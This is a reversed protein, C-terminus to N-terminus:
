NEGNMTNLRYTEFKQRVLKLGSEESMLYVTPLEHSLFVAMGETVSYAGTNEFVLCDNCRLDELELNRVLIDNMTCLSGAITWTKKEGNKNQGTESSDTSKGKKEGTNIDRDKADSIDIDRDMKLHEIVPKYMGKIQGDYNIQHIGGDTIAYDIGNNHKIDCVKLVYCGSSAAIFRGMELRVAFKKQIKEILGSLEQWEEDSVSMPDPEEGKNEFYDVRFGPGFEITDIDAGFNENLDRVTDYTDELEKYINKFNRKQTGSFYHLGEIKMFPDDRDLLMEIDSRDMGFQSDNTLRPYVHIMIQNERAWEAMIEYQQVSEATFISDSGGYSLMDILEDRKKLVGSILMKQPRVGLTKCIRFEGYSCIELREVDQIAAKILFPNAKMAFALETGEPLKSKIKWIRKKLEDTDFVYFPTEAKKCQERIIDINL